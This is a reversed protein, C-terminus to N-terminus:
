WALRPSGQEVEGSGEGRGTGAVTGELRGAKASVKM